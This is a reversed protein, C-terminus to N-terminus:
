DKLRPDLADRLGDGLLNMALVTLALFIGPAIILHPAAQIYERAESLMNGWEPRPAQVGLGIYSLGAANLISSGIGLTCQVIIPGMVNPIIHKLLIRAVSAGVATTSEIYDANRITLVSSRVVRAYKPIDAVAIAIMLNVIGSGLAAVVALALITSPIAIVIDMFRMVINDYRGGYFGATAGFIGGFFLSIIVAGLGIILSVRAGHAIRVFVDRGYHDTGLIHESSPGQLRNPIDMKIAVEDYDGIMNAFIALLIIVTLIFLGALATKNKILRKWVMGFKSQKKTSVNLSYDGSANMTQANDM